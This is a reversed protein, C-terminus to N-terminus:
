GQEDKEYEKIESLLGIFYEFQERWKDNDLWLCYRLRNAELILEVIIDFKDCMPRLLFNITDKESLASRFDFHARRGKKIDENHGCCSQTTTIFSFSNITELYSVLEKDIDNDVIAKHFRDMRYEKEEKSLINGKFDSM